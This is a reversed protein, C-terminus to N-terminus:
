VQSAPYVSDPEFVRVQPASPTHVDNVGTQSPVYVFVSAPISIINTFEHEIKFIVCLNIANLLQKLQQSEVVCVRGMLVFM